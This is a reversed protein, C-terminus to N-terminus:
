KADTYTISDVIYLLAAMVVSNTCTAASYISAQELMPFTPTASIGINM